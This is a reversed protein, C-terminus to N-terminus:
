SGGIGSKLKLEQLFTNPSTKLASHIRENNYYHITQYIKEILAGVSNCDAVTGLDEKFGRYFSEQIGNQWPSAKNSMSVRINLNHLLGIYRESRYESGQDSHIINPVLGTKLQADRFAALILNVDHSDSVKFGLVKRSYTDIFTALYFFKNKFKIYTFDSAWVINPKIPKLNKILNPYKLEEKGQDLAKFPKLRKRKIQLEYKQCVRQIRKKNIKLAIALRRFGYNRHKKRLKLITNKLEEDANSAIQSYKSRSVKLM